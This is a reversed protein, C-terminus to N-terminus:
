AQPVRQKTRQKTAQQPQKNAARLSPVQATTLQFQLISNRLPQREQAERLHMLHPLLPAKSQKKAM